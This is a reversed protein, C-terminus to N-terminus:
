AGGPIAKLQRAVREMRARWDTLRALSRSTATGDKRASRLAAIEADILDLSCEAEALSWPDARRRAVAAQTERELRDVDLQWDFLFDDAQMDAPRSDVQMM